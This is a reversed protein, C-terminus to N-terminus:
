IGDDPQRKPRKALVKKRRKIAKKSAVFSVGRKHGWPCQATAAANARM